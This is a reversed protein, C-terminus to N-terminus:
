VNSPGGAMGTLVNMVMISAYNVIVWSMVVVGFAKWASPFGHLEAMVNAVMWLWDCVFAIGALGAIAPVLSVLILLGVIALIFIGELFVFGLFIQDFSGTGQLLGGVKWIVWVTALGGLTSGIARALPAMPEGEIMTAAIALLPETVIVSVATVAVFAMFIVARPLSLQGLSAGADRPERVMQRAIGLVDDLLSM